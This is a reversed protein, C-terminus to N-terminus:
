SAPNISATITTGVYGSPHHRAPRCKKRRQVVQPYLEGPLVEKGDVLIIDPRERDVMKKAGRVSAATGVIRYGEMKLASLVLLAVGPDREILLVSHLGGSAGDKTM